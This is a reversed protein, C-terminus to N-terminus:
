DLYGRHGRWQLPTGQGCAGGQYTDRIYEHGRKIDALAARVNPLQKPNTEPCVLVHDLYEIYHGPDTRYRWAPQIVLDRIRILPNKIWPWEIDPEPCGCSRIPRSPEPASQDLKAFRTGIQEPLYSNPHLHAQTPLDCPTGNSDTSDQAELQQQLRDSAASRLRLASTQRLPPCAIHYGSRHRQRGVLSSMLRGARNM